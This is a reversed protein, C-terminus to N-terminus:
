EMETREAPKGEDKGVELRQHAEPSLFQVESNRDGLGDWTINDLLAKVVTELTRM